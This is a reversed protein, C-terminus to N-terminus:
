QCSESVSAERGRYIKVCHKGSSKADYLAQDAATLLDPGTQDSGLDYSTLGISCGLYQERPLVIDRELFQIIEIRYGNAAEIKELIRHALNLADVETTNPLLVLFEDGGYRAATDSTRLSLRLLEAFLRLVLDGAAHGFNDNYFKFNDLDIFLLAFGNGEKGKYREMRDEERTLIQVFQHRNYLGTLLDTTAMAQLKENSAELENTRERIREELENNLNALRKVTRADESSIYVSIAALFIFFVYESIMISHLYGGTVAFDNLGGILGPSFTLAGTLRSSLSLERATLFRLIPLLSFLVLILFAMLLYAPGTTGYHYNFDLTGLRVGLATVPFRLFFNFPILMMIFGAAAAFFRPYLSDPFYISYVCFVWGTVTVLLSALKMRHVTLLTAEPLTFSLLLQGATYATGALLTLGLWFHIDIRRNVLFARGLTQFSFNFLIGVLFALILQYAHM